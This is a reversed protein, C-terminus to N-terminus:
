AVTSNGRSRRCQSGIARAVVATAPPQRAFREEMPTSAIVVAAAAAAAVMTNAHAEVRRRGWGILSARRGLGGGGSPGM